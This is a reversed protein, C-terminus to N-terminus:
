RANFYEGINENKISVMVTYTVNYGTKKIYCNTLNMNLKFREIKKYFNYVRRKEEIRQEKIWEQYRRIAQTREYASLTKLLEATIPQIKKKM